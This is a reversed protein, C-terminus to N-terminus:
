KFFGALIEAVGEDIRRVREEVPLDELIERSAHGRFVVTRDATDIVDVVLTGAEWDIPYDGDIAVKKHAYSLIDSGSSVYYDSIATSAVNTQLLILYTVILQANDQDVTFGHSQFQEHLADQVARNAVDERNAFAPLDEPAQRYLRYTTYGESTGKPSRINTSNCGSLAALAALLIVAPLVISPKM